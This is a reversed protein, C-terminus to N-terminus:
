ASSRSPEVPDPAPDGAHDDLWDRLARYVLPHNLLDLHHAPAVRLRDGVGVDASPSRVLLDGLLWGVPHRESRTLEAVVTHHRASPLPVAGAAPVGGSLDQIGESRLDLLEAWAATAPRASLLGSLVEVGRALSAGAHPSGLYVVHRVLEPWRAGEALGQACALRLVLGGMSHGILDVRHMPVPWVELLDGLLASLAAASTALPRGTNYRVYLPTVGLDAALREGYDPNVPAGRSRRFRWAHETEGLGPVLLVLHGGADPYAARLEATRAPLDGGAHRLSMGMDLDNAQAALRDGLLGNVAAVVGSGSVSGDLPARPGSLATAVAVTEGVLLATGRVAGYSIAAIANHGLRVPAAVPGLVRFVREAIVQHTREGPRAVLGVAQGILRAAGGTEDRAPTPKVHPPQGM